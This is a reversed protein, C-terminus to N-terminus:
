HYMRIYNKRQLTRDLRRRNNNTDFDTPYPTFAKTKSVILRYLIGDLGKAIIITDKKATKTEYFYDIFIEKIDKLPITCIHTDGFESSIFEGCRNCKIINNHMNVVLM